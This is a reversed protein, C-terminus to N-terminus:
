YADRSPLIRHDTLKLVTQVWCPERQYSESLGSHTCTCQSERVLAISSLPSQNAWLKLKWIQRSSDEPSSQCSVEPCSGLWHVPYLLIPCPRYLQEHCSYEQGWDEELPGRESPWVRHGKRSAAFPSISHPITLFQAPSITSIPPLLGNRFYGNFSNGM